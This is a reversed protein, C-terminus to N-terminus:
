QLGLVSKINVIEKEVNERVGDDPAFRSKYNYLSYGANGHELVMTIQRSLIDESDIWENEADQAWTDTVGCKYAALAPILKVDTGATLDEWQKLTDEFPKTPHNFGWYLQPALYDVTGEKIWASPDAYVTNVDYDLNGAPSIGFSLDPNEKKLADHMKRILTNVNERRFDEQSIEQEANKQSWAYSDFNYATQDPYFYDDLVIGDVDYSRVIELPISVILDRVDAYAPNLYWRGDVPRIKESNEQIWQRIQGSAQSSAEELTYSRMPNVWADVKMGASHAAKLFLALPDYSTDAAWTSRPYISSDYFADTFASAHLYIENTGVSAMDQVIRVTKEEFQGADLGQMLDRYEVWSFWMARVPTEAAASASAATEKPASTCGALLCGCLLAKLLKKM